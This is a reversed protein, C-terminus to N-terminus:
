TCDLLLLVFAANYWCYVVPPWESRSAVHLHQPHEALLRAIDARRMHTCQRGALQPTTAERALGVRQHFREVCADLEVLAHCRNIALSANSVGTLKALVKDFHLTVSAAANFSAWNSM